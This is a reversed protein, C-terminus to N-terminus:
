QKKTHRNNKYQADTDSFRDAAGCAKVVPSSFVCRTATSARPGLDRSSKLSMAPSAPM